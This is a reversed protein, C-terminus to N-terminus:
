HVTVHDRDPLDAFGGDTVAAVFYRRRGRGRGEQIEQTAWSTKKGKGDVHPFRLWDCLMSYVYQRPVHEWHRVAHRLRPIVTKASSNLHLTIFKAMSGVVYESRVYQQSM